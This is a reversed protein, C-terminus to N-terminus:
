SPATVTFKSRLRGLDGADRLLVLARGMNALVTAGDPFGRRLGFCYDASPLAELPTFTIENPLTQGKIKHRAMIESEVYADIRDFGIMKVVADQSGAMTLRNNPFLMQSWSAGLFTGIRLAGLQEKNMTPRIRVDSARHVVGTRDTILPTDFFDIYTRREDTPYACCADLDGAKILQQGRAWPMGHFEFALGSKAAILNLCEVLLGRMKGDAGLVSYPAYDNSAVLRIPAGAARAKTPWAAAATLAGMGKGFLRRTLQLNALDSVSMSM